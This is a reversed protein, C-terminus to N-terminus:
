LSHQAQVPLTQRVPTTRVINQMFSSLFLQTIVRNAQMWTHQGGQAPLSSRGYRLWLACHCEFLYNRAVVERRM